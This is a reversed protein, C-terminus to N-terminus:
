IVYLVTALVVFSIATIEMIDRNVNHVCALTRKVNLAPIQAVHCVSVRNQNGSTGLIVSIADLSEM